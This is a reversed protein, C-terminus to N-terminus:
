KADIRRHTPLTRFKEQLFDTFVRTRAPVLPSPPRVAWINWEPWVRFESMLVVLDGRTIDDSANWLSTVAIGVGDRVARQIADGNNCQFRGSVSVRETKGQATEFVWNQEDGLVICNHSRLDAPSAPAGHREIYAPAAVLARPSDALKRARLTSSALTGIRISLDFGHEVIDLVSDTLQLDIHADPHQELFMPIHPTIYQLGFTASATVRLLGKIRTEGGSLDLRADEVADLISRAHALFREGDPTLTVSRTTRSLLSVGLGAELAQLRQTTSAASYGLEHGARGIARLAAVRIFLRVTALDLDM